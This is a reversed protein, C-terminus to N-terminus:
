ATVEARLHEALAEFFLAVDARDGAGGGVLLSVEVRADTADVIEALVFPREGLLVDCADDDTEEYHVVVSDEASM